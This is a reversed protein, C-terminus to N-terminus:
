EKHIADERDVCREAISLAARWLPEEISNQNQFCHLLQPCGEGNVSKMMITKFRKVKNGMMSEMLPSLRRPIFPEDEEPEAAGLLNKIEDYTYPETAHFLVSM